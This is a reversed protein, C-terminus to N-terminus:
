SRVEAVDANDTSAAIDAQPRRATNSIRLLIALLIYNAMLASGGASIFPTTLGTVPLLATIGGTVVFVQIAVALSLGGAVVKGYCDGVKMASNLGRAVLLAVLVLVASLGILGFEEVI